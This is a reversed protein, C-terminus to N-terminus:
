NLNREKLLKNVEKIKTKNKAAIPLYILPLFTLWGLGNKVSSYIAVGILFGFIVADYVNTPKLNKAEQLLEEDTLEALQKQKM